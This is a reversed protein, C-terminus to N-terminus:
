RVWGGCAACRAATASNGVDRRQPQALGHGRSERRDHHSPRQHQWFDDDAHVPRDLVQTLSFEAQLISIDYRFGATQSAAPL